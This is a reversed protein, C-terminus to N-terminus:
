TRETGRGHCGRRGRVLLSTEAKRLLRRRPSAFRGAFRGINIGLLVPITVIAGGLGAQEREYYQAAEVLEREALENFTVQM